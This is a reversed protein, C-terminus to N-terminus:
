YSEHINKYLQVVTTKSRDKECPLGKVSEKNSEATLPAYLCGDHIGKNCEEEEGASFQKIHRETEQNGGAKICTFSFYVGHIQIIVGADLVKNLFM